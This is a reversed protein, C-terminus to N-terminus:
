DPMLSDGLLEPVKDLKADLPQYTSVAPQIRWPSTLVFTLVGPIPFFITSSATCVKVHSTTCVGNYGLGPNMGLGWFIGLCLHPYVSVTLYMHRSSTCGLCLSVNLTSVGPYFPAKRDSPSPWLFCSGSVLWHPLFPSVLCSITGLSPPDQLCGLASSPQPGAARVVTAQTREGQGSWWYAYSSQSIGGSTIPNTEFIFYLIWNFYKSIPSHAHGLYYLLQRTLVLGQIWVV